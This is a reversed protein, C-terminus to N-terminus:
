PWPICVRQCGDTYVRSSNECKQSRAILLLQHRHPREIGASTITQSVSHVHNANWKLGQGCNLRTFTSGLSGLPTCLATSRSYQNCRGTTPARSHSRSRSTEAQTPHLNLGITFQHHKRRVDLGRGSVCLRAPARVKKPQNQIASLVTEFQWYWM